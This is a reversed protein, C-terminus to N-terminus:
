DRREKEEGLGSQHGFPSKRTVLAGRWRNKFIRPPNKKGGNSLDMGRPIEGEGEDELYIGLTEGESANKM